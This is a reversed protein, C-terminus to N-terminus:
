GRYLAEYHEQMQRITFNEEAFRQAKQGLEYLPATPIVDRFLTMYQEMDNDKVALSWDPPLTDILGACSNCVMPLGEMSAEIAMISLGEFESPMLLLDFSGLYAALGYVPPYMSVNHCGMLSRGITQRLSGDGILHFHYREDARLNLIIQIIHKVGKQEEFRGAFLVNKRDPMIHLWPRQPLRRVGNYILMPRTHYEAEYSDAVSPSIAVNAGHKQIFREFRRGTASLGTWLKTNHVTRVLRVKRRLWPFLTLFAQTAMDPVETHTHIVAPRHKMYIFIFWLPFVAAALREFLYHFKVTRIPSRHYKIGKSELEKIFVDTYDTHGRIVEVIHYEFGETRSLAISLAVREAGGMGLSSIIHFVTTTKM